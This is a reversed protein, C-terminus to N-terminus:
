TTDLQQGLVFDGPALSALVGERAATIGRHAPPTPPGRARSEALIVIVPARGSSRAAAAEVEAEVKTARAGGGTACSRRPWPWSGALAPRM